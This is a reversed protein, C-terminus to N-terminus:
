VVTFCISIVICIAVRIWRAFTFKNGFIFSNYKCLNTSWRNEFLFDGLPEIAKIVICIGAFCVVTVGDCLSLCEKQNDEANSQNEVRDKDQRQQELCVPFLQFDSYTALVSVAGALRRPSDKKGTELSSGGNCLTM